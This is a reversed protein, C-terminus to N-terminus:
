RISLVEAPGIVILAKTSELSGKLLPYTKGDEQIAVHGLMERINDIGEDVAPFNAGDVGMIVLGVIKGDKTVGSGSNGHTTTDDVLFYGKPWDKTLNEISVVTGRSLVKAATLPFGVTLTKDGVRLTSDSGLEIPQWDKPKAVPVYLLMVDLSEDTAMKDILITATQPPTDIDHAVSLVLDDPLDPNAPGCHGATMVIIGHKTRRIVNGSCLSKPTNIGAEASTAEILVSSRWVKGDRGSPPAIAGLPACALMLGALAALIRRKMKWEVSM